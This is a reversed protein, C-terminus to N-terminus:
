VVFLLPFVLTSLPELTIRVAKIREFCGYITAARERVLPLHIVFFDVSNKLCPYSFLWLLWACSWCSTAREYLHENGRADRGGYLTRHILFQLAIGQKLLEEIFFFGWLQQILNELSWHVERCLIVFRTFHSRWQFSLIMVFGLSNQKIVWTAWSFIRITYSKQFNTSFLKGFASKFM